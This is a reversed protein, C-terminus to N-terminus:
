TIEISKRVTAKREVVFAVYRAKRDELAAVFAKWTAECATVYYRDMRGGRVDDRGFEMAAYHAGDPVDGSGNVATMGVPADVIAAM